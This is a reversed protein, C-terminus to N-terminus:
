DCRYGKSKQPCDSVNQGLLVALKPESQNSLGILQDLEQNNFGVLKKDGIVMLPRRILLHDALMAELAQIATYKEPITQGSTVSPANKNFWEKVPLDQFFSVLEEKTWHYTVLNIAEVEHGAMTLIEKQKTNNVCGTKEYFIVKAM